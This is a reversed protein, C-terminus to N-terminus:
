HFASVVVTKNFFELYGDGFSSIEGLSLIGKLNLEPNKDKIVKRIAGIEGKFGDELFLVRSICDTVFIDVPEVDACAEAAAQRASEILVTPEGMLLNVMSYRPVEGVCVLSGDKKTMIPDRVVDEMGERYVGFPFGKAINFFNDGSFSETSHKQVEQRYIEFAPKWNLEALVNGQSANVQFPGAIKKWGHKVGPSISNQIFILLAADQYFGENTFICPKQELTLSGSGGGTFTLTDWYKQYIGNLVSPIGSSLGDVFVFASRAGEPKDPLHFETHTSIDQALATGLANPLQRIIVADKYYATDYLVAPFLGGAIALGKENAIEILDNISLNCEEAVLLVNLCDPSLSDIIREKAPNTILM